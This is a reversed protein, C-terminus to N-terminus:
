ILIMMIMLITMVIIVYYSKHEDDDDNYHDNENCSLRSVDNLHVMALTLHRSAMFDDAFQM